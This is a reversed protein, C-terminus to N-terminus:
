VAFTRKALAERRQRACDEEFQKARANRDAKAAATRERRIRAEIAARRKAEKREARNLAKVGSLVAAVGARFEAMTMSSKPMDHFAAVTNISTHLAAKHQRNQADFMYWEGRTRFKRLMFHLAREARQAHERDRAHLIFVHRTEFPANHCIECIRTQLYSSMGVKCAIAGNVDALLIYVGNDECKGKDHLRLQEINM